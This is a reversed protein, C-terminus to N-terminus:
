PESDATWGDAVRSRAIHHVSARGLFHRKDACTAQALGLRTAEDDVKHRLAAAVHRVAREKEAPGALIELGAVQCWIELRQADARRTREPLHVVNGTRHAPRDGRITQPIEDGRVAASARRVARVHVVVEVSAVWG